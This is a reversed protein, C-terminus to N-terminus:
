FNMVVFLLYVTVFPLAFLFADFRDLLGGHGPMLNGSDKAGVARKMMSEVLDGIAGFLSVILALVVWHLLSLSTPLIFNLAVGTLMCWILGGRFGEWTKNPSIRTFLPTKGRKSGVVYAGTDSLWNLTVIGLIIYPQFKGSHWALVHVMPLSLGVYILAFFIAAMNQFPRESNTFMEFVMVLFLSLFFIALFPLFWYSIVANADRDNIYFLYFSVLFPVSCFFTGIIRRTTFFRDREITMTLLEWACGATIFLFMLEFTWEFYLCVLMVIVIFTATIARKRFTPPM